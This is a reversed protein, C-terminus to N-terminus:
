IKIQKDWMNGRVVKLMGSIMVKETLEPKGEVRM